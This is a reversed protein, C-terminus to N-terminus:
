KRFKLIISGLTLLTTLNLVRVKARVRAARRTCRESSISCKSCKQRPKCSKIFSSQKISVYKIAFLQPETRQATSSLELMAFCNSDVPKLIISKLTLLKTPNLVRVKARVRGARRTCSKSCLSCEQRSKCNKISIYQKVSVGKMAFLQAKTRQATSILKLHAFCNSDVSKLIISELTLLKTPNLVRVKVRVRDARRTCRYSSISCKLCKQRPKCSRIFISQKVSVYKIAFLQPETRQATSILELMAFCNSEVPKLIISKLTLLKTPNLVRVKARVRAARRTCSKSCISCEQRPKCNKISIYQKVSVDKMAFLQAKTRQATSILELHAFCNSDM